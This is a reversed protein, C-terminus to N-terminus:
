LTCRYYNLLSQVASLLSNRQTQNLAELNYIEAYIERLLQCRSRGAYNAM